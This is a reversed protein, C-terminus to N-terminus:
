RCVEAELPRFAANRMTGVEFFRPPMGIAFRSQKQAEDFGVMPVTAPIHHFRDRGGCREEDGVFDSSGM